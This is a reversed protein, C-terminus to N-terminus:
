KSDSPRFTYQTVNKAGQTKSEEMWKNKEIKSTQRKM